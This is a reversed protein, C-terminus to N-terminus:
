FTFWYVVSIPIFVFPTILLKYIKPPFSFHNQLGMAKFLFIILIYNFIIIIQLLSAAQNLYSLRFPPFDCHTVLVVANEPHPYCFQHHSTHM